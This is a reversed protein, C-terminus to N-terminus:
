LILLGSIMENTNHQGRMLRNGRELSGSEDSGQFPIEHPKTSGFVFVFLFGDCCRKTCYIMGFSIAITQSM